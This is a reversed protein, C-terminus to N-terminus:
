GTEDTATVSITEPIISAFGQGQSKGDFNNGSAVVVPINEADLTKVATTISQGVSLDNGFLNSQYNGGDSVSLNVATIQYKDHNQVVWDLAQAIKDFSGQNDDGFVRLAM